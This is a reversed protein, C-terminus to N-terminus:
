NNLAAILMMQGRHYSDHQLMSGLSQGVNGFFDQAQEPVPGLLASDLQDDDLGAILKVSDAGIDTYLRIVEDWTPYFERDSTIPLGGFFDPSFKADVEKAMKKEGNLIWHNTVEDLSGCLHGMLWLPHAKGDKLQTYRKEEDIGTANKLTAQISAEFQESLLGTKANSM